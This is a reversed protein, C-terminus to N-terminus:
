MVPGAAKTKSPSMAKGTFYDATPAPPVAPCLGPAGVSM